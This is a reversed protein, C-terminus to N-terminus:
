KQECQQEVTEVTVFVTYVARGAENEAICTYSGEDEEVATAIVVSINDVTVLPLGNMLWTVEPLPVGTVICDLVVAEGTAVVISEPPETINPAVSFFLIAIVFKTVRLEEPGNGRREGGEGGGRM